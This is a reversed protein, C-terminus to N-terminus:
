NGYKGLRNIAIDRVLKKLENRLQQERPSISEEQQPQELKLTKGVSGGLITKLMKSPEILTDTKRGSGKARNLLHAIPVSTGADDVVLDARFSGDEYKLEIRESFFDKIENQIERRRESSTNPDNAEDVKDLVYQKQEENLQFVKDLIVDRNLRGRGFSTVLFDPPRDGLGIHELIHLGDVVTAQLQRKFAPSAEAAEVMAATVQADQNRCTREIGKFIEAGSGASFRCLFSREDGNLSEVGVFKGNEDFMKKIASPGVVDCYKQPDANASALFVSGAKRSDNCLDMLASEMQEKTTGSNNFHNNLEKNADNIVKQAINVGGPMLIERADDPEPLSAVATDIFSQTGLNAFYINGDKKLSDGITIGNKMVVMFDSSTKHGSTGALQNGNKTDWFFDEIERVDFGLEHINRLTQLVQGCSANIWTQDIQGDGNTERQYEENIDACVQESIEVLDSDDLQEKESYPPRSMIDLANKSARVTLAEAVLSSLQGAAKGSTARQLLEDLDMGAHQIDPNTQRLHQVIAPYFDPGLSTQTGIIKSLGLEKYMEKLFTKASFIMKEVLALEAQASSKTLFAYRQINDNHRRLNKIVEDSSSLGSRDLMREIKKREEEEQRKLAAPSMGIRTGREAGALADQAVQGLQRNLTALQRDSAVAVDAGDESGAPQEGSADDPAPGRGVAWAKASPEDSFGYEPETISTDMSKAAWGKKTKWTEGPQREKKPAERVFGEIISELLTKM